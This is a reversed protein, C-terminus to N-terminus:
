DVAQDATQFNRQSNSYEMDKHCSNRDHPSPQSVRIHKAERGKKSEREKVPSDRKGREEGERYGNGRLTTSPILKSEKKAVKKLKSVCRMIGSFRLKGVVITVAM